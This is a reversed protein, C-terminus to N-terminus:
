ERQPGIEGWRKRLVCGDTKDKLVGTGNAAIMLRVCISPHFSRLWLFRYVEQAGGQRSMQWLSEERFNRLCQTYESARFQDVRPTSGLSGAPFFGQDGSPGVLVGALIVMLMRVSLWVGNVTPDNGETGSGEAAM